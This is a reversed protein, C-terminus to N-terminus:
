NYIEQYIELIFKCYQKLEEKKAEIDYVNIWNKKIETVFM